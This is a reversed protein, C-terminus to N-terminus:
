TGFYLFHSALLAQHYFALAFIVVGLQLAVVFGLARSVLRHRQRTNLWSLAAVSAVTWITAVIGWGAAIAWGAADNPLLPYLMAFWLVLGPVIAAVAVGLWQRPSLSTSTSM